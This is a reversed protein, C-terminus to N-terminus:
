PFAQWGLKLLEWGLRALFGALWLAAALALVALAYGISRGLSRARQLHPPEITADEPAPPKM